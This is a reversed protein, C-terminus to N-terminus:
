ASVRKEKDKKLMEKPKFFDSGRVKIFPKNTEERNPNPITISTNKGKRSHALQRIMKDGEKSQRVLNSIKANVNPRQGKSIYSTKSGKPKSM